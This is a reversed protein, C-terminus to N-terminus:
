PAESTVNIGIDEFPYMWNTDAYNGGFYAQLLIYYTGTASFTYSISPCHYEYGLQTSGDTDYLYMEMVRADHHACQDSVLAFTYTDTTSTVDVSFWDQDVDDYFNHGMSTAGLTLATGTGFSDDPETAELTNKSISVGYPEFYSDGSNVYPYANLYYDGTAPFTTV